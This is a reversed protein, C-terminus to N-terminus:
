KETINAAIQVPHGAREEVALWYDRLPGASLPLALFPEELLDGLTVAEAAALQHRRVAAVFRPKRPAPHADMLRAGTGAWTM